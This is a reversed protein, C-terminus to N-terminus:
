PAMCPLRPHPDQSATERTTSQLCLESSLPSRDVSPVEGRKGKTLSLHYRVWGSPLPRQRSPVQLRGKYEWLPKSFYVSNSTIQPGGFASCLGLHLDGWGPILCEKSDKECMFVPYHTPTVSGKFPKRFKLRLARGSAKQIRCNHFMKRLSFFGPFNKFAKKKLTHIRITIAKM